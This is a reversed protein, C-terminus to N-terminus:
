RSKICFNWGKRNFLTPFVIKKKIEELHEGSPNEGFQSCSTFVLFSSLTILFFKKM